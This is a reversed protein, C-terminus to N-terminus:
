PKVEVPGALYAEIAKYTQKIGLAKCTGKIGDGILNVSRIGKTQITALIKDAIVNAPPAGAYMHPEKKIAEALKTRYLEAFIQFREENITKVNIM